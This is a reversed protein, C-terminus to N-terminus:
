ANKDGRSMNAEWLEFPPAKGSRVPNCKNWWQCKEKTCLFIESSQKMTIISMIPCMVSDNHGSLWKKKFQDVSSLYQDKSYDGSQWWELDHLVDCFDELLANLEHDYMEGSYNDRIREYMYNFSGGSM